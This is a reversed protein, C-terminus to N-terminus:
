DSLLPQIQLNVSEQQFDPFTRQRLKAVERKLSSIEETQAKAIDALRRRVTVRKM